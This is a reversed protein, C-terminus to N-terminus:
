SPQAGARKVLEAFSPPNSVRVRVGFLERESGVRSLEFSSAGYLSELGARLEPLFREYTDDNNPANLRDAVRLSLEDTRFSVRESLSTEAHLLEAARLTRRLAAPFDVAGRKNVYLLGLKAAGRDLAYDSEHGILVVAPGDPVHAYDAVDILLEPLVSERIWRHFVSVYPDVHVDREAFLKIQIKFPQM